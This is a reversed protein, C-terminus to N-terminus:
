EPVSTAGSASPVPVSVVQRVRHNQVDQVFVVLFLDDLDLPGDAFQIERRERLVDMQKKLDKRIAAPDISGQITLSGGTPEQGQSPTFLKRVVMDHVPVGNYGRYKVEGEALAVHLRWRDSIQDAQVTAEFAATGDAAPTVKADIQLIAEASLEEVVEDYLHQLVRPVATADGALNEHM